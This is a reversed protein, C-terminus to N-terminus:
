YKSRFFIAPNKFPHKSGPLRIAFCMDTRLCGYEEFDSFFGWSLKVKNKYSGDTPPSAPVSSRSQGTTATPAYSQGTRHQPCTVPADMRRPFPVALVAAGMAM